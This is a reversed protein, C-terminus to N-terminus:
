IGYWAHVIGQPASHYHSAPQLEAAAQRVLTGDRHPRRVTRTATQIYFIRVGSRLGPLYLWRQTTDHVDQRVPRCSLRSAFFLTPRNM